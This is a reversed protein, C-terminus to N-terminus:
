ANNRNKSYELAMSLINNKENKFLEIKLHEPQIQNTEILLKM